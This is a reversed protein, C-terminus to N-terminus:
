FNFKGTKVYEMLIDRIEERDELTTCEEMAIQKIRSETLPKMLAKAMIRIQKEKSFLM